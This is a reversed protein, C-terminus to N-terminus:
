ELAIRPLTSTVNLTSQADIMASWSVGVFPDALFRNARSSVEAGSLGWRGAPGFSRM